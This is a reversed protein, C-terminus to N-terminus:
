NSTRYKGFHSLEIFNNKIKQYELEYNNIKQEKFINEIYYIKIKIIIM